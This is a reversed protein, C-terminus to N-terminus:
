KLLKLAFFLVEHLFHLLSTVIIRKVSDLSGHHVFRFGQTLIVVSSTFIVTWAKTFFKGYVSQVMQSFLM